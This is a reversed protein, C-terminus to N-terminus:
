QGTTKVPAPAAEEVMIKGAMGRGLMVRVGKVSVVVPGSRDNLLVRVQQGPIIGMALLRRRLGKGAVINKVLVTEGPKVASLTARRM